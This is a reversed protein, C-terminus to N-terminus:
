PVHPILGPRYAEKQVERPMMRVDVPLGNVDFVWALRNEELMSPLCWNRDM